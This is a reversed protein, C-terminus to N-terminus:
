GAEDIQPVPLHAPPLLAQVQLASARFATPEVVDDEGLTQEHRYTGEEPTTCVVLQRLRLNVIWYEPVSAAAYRLRKINYDRAWTTDCM